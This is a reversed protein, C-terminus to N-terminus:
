RLEACLYLGLNKEQGDSLYSETPTWGARTCLDILEDEGFEHVYRLARGGRRWDLLLDGPELDAGDLGLESWPLIRNRLRSSRSPQWVSVVLRAGPHALEALQELLRQRRRSGPLHHLFAFSLVTDFSPKQGTDLPPREVADFRPGQIGSYLRDMWDAVALDIRLLQHDTPLGGSKAAQELLSASGDIGIYRAVSEFQALYRGVRGDGCGLDLVTGFRGRGDLARLIGPNLSHRTAAFHTGFEEYFGANLALLRRTTSRDM